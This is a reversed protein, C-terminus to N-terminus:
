KKEEQPTMLSDIMKIMEFLDKQEKEKNRCLLRVNHLMQKARILPSGSKNGANAKEKEQKNAVTLKSRNKQRTEEMADNNRQRQSRTIAM